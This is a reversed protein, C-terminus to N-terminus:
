GGIHVFTVGARDKGSEEKQIKEVLIGCVPTPSAADLEQYHEPNSEELCEFSASTKYVYSLVLLWRLFLSSVRALVLFLWSKLLLLM